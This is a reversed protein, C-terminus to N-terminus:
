GVPRLGAIAGSGMWTEVIERVMAGLTEVESPKRHFASAGLDMCRQAHEAHESSTLVVVPCRIAGGQDRIWELVAFGDIDPMMLDLLILDPLPHSRRDQFPPTGAMYALGERGDGAVRVDLGPLSRRAAVRILLAQDQADEIVLLTPDNKFSDIPSGKGLPEHVFGSRRVPVLKLHLKRLGRAVRGNM